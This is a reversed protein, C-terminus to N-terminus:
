AEEEVVPELEADDGQHLDQPDVEKITAISILYDVAKDMLIGSEIRERSGQLTTRVDDISMGFDQASQAIQKEFDEETVKIDERKAVAELVLNEKVVQEAQPRVDARMTEMTVGTMEMYTELQLGQYSMREAFQYLLQDIQKEIMEQPIDIETRSAAEAVVRTRINQQKEKEAMEELNTRIDQKLEELTEFDSVDKAFDDDLPALEKKKIERIKVEFRAEKGRLDEAQYDDPFVVIIEKEEDAQSGVLQEEFGPIFTKSGLELSYDEGSGGEFPEGDIYGKFDLSLLDGNEATAGAGAVELKAYRVQMVTLRQNVENDTVEVRPIEVEIGTLDGLTVEPKVVVNAKFILPKGDEMQVVDIKPQAVPEIDVEEVAEGYAQPIVEELAEEYLAEKGLYAELIQRPAKGKRFGPVNVKVVVKRYASQLAKALRDADVEIELAVENREIRELKTKL